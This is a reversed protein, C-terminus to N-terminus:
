PVYLTHRLGQKNDQLKKVITGTYDSGLITLKCEFAIKNNQLCIIMPQKITDKVLHLEFQKGRGSERNRRKTLGTQLRASDRM